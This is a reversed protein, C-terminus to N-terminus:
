GISVAGLSEDLKIAAEGNEPALLPVTAMGISVHPIATDAHLAFEGIFPVAKMGFM